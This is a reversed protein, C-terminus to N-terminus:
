PDKSVATPVPPTAPARGPGFRIVILAVGAVVMGGGGLKYANVSDGLLVIGLIVALVPVLLTLPVVRNVDHRRILGFWIGYALISSMLATYLVAGWGALGADLMAQWHNDEFWWSALALQPTAFLAIWGAMAMPSVKPGLKILLQSVAWGLASALLLATPLPAPLTPGGALVGIGGFSLLLGVLRKAGLRERLFIVALLTAFPTGMQVLLAGTGAEAQGLGIILLAFNMVGFTVSLLALFPLQHRAVPHFPALLAAVLALRLTTLLLPPMDSVGLKIVIINLAWIAIVLLGLLLDRLPM